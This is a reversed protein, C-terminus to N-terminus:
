GFRYSEGRMTLLREQATEFWFGSCMRGDKSVGGLPREESGTFIESRM